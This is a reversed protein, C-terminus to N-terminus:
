VAAEARGPDSEDLSGQPFPLAIATNAAKTLATPRRADM